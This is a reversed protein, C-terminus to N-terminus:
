ELNQARCNKAAKYGAQEAEEKTGFFIRDTEKIENSPECGSPYYVKSKKDAVIAETVGQQADSEQDEKAQRRAAVTNEAAEDVIRFSPGEAVISLTMQFDACRLQQGRTKWSKWAEPVRLSQSIGKVFDPVTKWKFSGDFGLWLSTLRGDLFDLSITRVGPFSSKDIRPDFDPNISTKAVGFDDAKPFLVQPVRARVQDLTMGIRFGMLEPAAPLDALKIACPNDQASGLSACLLVLLVAFAIPATARGNPLANGEREYLVGESVTPSSGRLMISNKM